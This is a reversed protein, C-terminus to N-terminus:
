ISINIQIIAIINSIWCWLSGMELNFFYKTIFFSFTGFLTYFLGNTFPKIMLCALILPLFYFNDIHTIKPLINQHSIFWWILHCHPGKVSLWKKNKDIFFAYLLTIFSKLFSIFIIILLLIKEWLNYLKNKYYYLSGALALPQSLIFFLSLKSVFTHEKMNRWMFFEFFQMLSFWAIWISIPRDNNLNRYFLYSCLTISTFFTILSVHENWCM